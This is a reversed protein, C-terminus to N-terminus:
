LSLILTSFHKRIELDHVIYELNHSPTKQKSPPDIQLRSQSSILLFSDAKWTRKVSVRIEASKLSLFVDNENKM